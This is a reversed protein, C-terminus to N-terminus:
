GDTQVPPAVPRHLHDPMALFWRDRREAVVMGELAPHVRCLMERGRGEQVSPQGFYMKQLSTRKKM